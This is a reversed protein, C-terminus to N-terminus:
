IGDIAEALNLDKDTVTNGADHTKLTLKVQNYTNEITPHHNAEEALNAVETLFSFAEVFNAFEKEFVIANEDGSWYPHNKLWSTLNLSM